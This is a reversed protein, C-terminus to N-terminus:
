NRVDLLIKQTLIGGVPIDDGGFCIHYYGMNREEKNNQVPRRTGM